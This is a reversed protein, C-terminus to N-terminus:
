LHSFNGLMSAYAATPPTCANQRLVCWSDEQGQLALKEGVLQGTVSMPWLINYM